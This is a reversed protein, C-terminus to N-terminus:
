DLRLSIHKYMPYSERFAESNWRLCYATLMPMLHIYLNAIHEYNHFTLQCMTMTYLGIPGNAGGFFAFYGDIMIERVQGDADTDTHTFVGIFLYLGMLTALYLITWCMEVMYWNTKAKIKVVTLLIILFVSM